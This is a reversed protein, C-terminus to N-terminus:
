RCNRTSRCYSTKSRDNWRVDGYEQLSFRFKSAREHCTTQVRSLWAVFLTTTYADNRPVRRTVDHITPDVEYRATQSGKEKTSFFNPALFYLYKEDRNMGVWLFFSRHILEIMMWLSIRKRCGIRPRWSKNGAGAGFNGPRWPLMASSNHGLHKEFKNLSSPQIQNRLFINLTTPTSSLSRPFWFLFLICPSTVSCSSAKLGNATREGVVRKANAKVDRSCKQQCCSGPTSCWAVLPAQLTCPQLLTSSKGVPNPYTKLCLSTEQCIERM